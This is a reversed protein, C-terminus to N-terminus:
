CRQKVFKRFSKGRKSTIGNNVFLEFSCRFFQILSSTYFRFERLKENNESGKAFNMKAFFYSLFNSVKLVVSFM